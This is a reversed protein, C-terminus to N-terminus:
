GAAVAVCKPPWQYLSFFELFYDIYGGCGRPTSQSFFFSPVVLSLLRLYIFITAAGSVRDSVSAVPGLYM